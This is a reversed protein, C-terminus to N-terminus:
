VGRKVDQFFWDRRYTQVITFLGPLLGVLYLAWWLNWDSGSIIGGIAALACIVYSITLYRNWHTM